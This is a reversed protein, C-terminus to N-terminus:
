ARDRYALVRLANLIVALAAGDDSLIATWLTASGALALVLVALKVVVALAINQRVIRLTSRSLGFLYPLHGLNDSMLVVDATDLAADSGAIGMAVGVSAAALAPADNIGDGVMGVSGGSRKLDEIAEVKDEPLLGAKVEEIGFDRGVARAASEHDGSLMVVRRIGEKRLRDIIGRGGHRVGDRFAVVGLPVGATGLVVATKGEGHFKMLASEVEATLFGAERGLALNGLFYTMGGIMGRVGLGPLAEFEEVQPVPDSGPVQECARLAAAALHHESDRELAAVTALVQARTRSDLPVVDTVSPNGTTLTGTKDLALVSVGALAEIHAGGKILVGTRAANTLASVFAVPTAIVLACPCAIVLLVLSRYLWTVPSAGLLLPPVLFILLALILVAPTYVRAFRDVSKQVPARRAQAEEVLLLIRAITSEGAERTTRLRLSSTGNLSGAYVADGAKKPVRASEGTVPAEDVTSRGDVVIGDLPVREGPRIVILEGPHVDAAAVATEGGERVVAATDPSLSMLSRLARRTRTGSYSELMLSVAFLVVVAAGEEWKGIALAGAVAVCILVNMDLARTRVAGVARRFIRWGGVLIAAGLLIRSAGGGAAVGALSLLGAAAAT